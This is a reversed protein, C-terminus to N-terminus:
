FKIIEEMRMQVGQMNSLSKLTLFFSYNDGLEKVLVKFKLEEQKDLLLQAFMNNSEPYHVLGYSKIKALKAAMTIAEQLGGLNDILGLKKADIGTWVRGKAIKAIYQPSKNRGQAVRNIFNNYFTEVNTQLLLKAQPTMPVVVSIPNSNSHTKVTDFSIGLKTKLARGFNPVVGFVGISGTITTPQAFIYSANSSIEYGASAAMDGMSVVIPKIRKAKVIENTILESAIADGGPSNVRLVIAKIDEDKVAKQIAKCLTKSSISLDTGNDQNVEGYAYIIAINKDQSVFNPAISKRYKQYAIFNVKNKNKLKYQKALFSAIFDQYDSKFTLCDVIHNSLANQPMVGQLSSVINDFIKNDIHRSEQMQLAMTSWISNIYAKTQLKNSDSMHNMTYQEGASKFSNSIPRILDIDVDLKNVLDKLYMVQGGLGSLFVMGVPNVAIQDAITAIYYSSQDYTDAYAYIKKGSSKFDQLVSRIEQASAIGNAQFSAMNLCIANINNDKKAYDITQIFEMLGINTNDSGFMSSLNSIQRDYVPRSFDIVLVSNPKIEVISNNKGFSGIMSVICVFIIFCSLIIAIGSGLCSAFFFKFFQKM